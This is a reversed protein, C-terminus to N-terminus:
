HISKGKRGNFLIFLVLSYVLVFVILETGQLLLIHLSNDGPILWNISWKLLVILLLAFGSASIVKVAPGFFKLKRLVPAQKGGLTLLVLCSSGVSLAAALSIGPLGILPVFILLYIFNLCADALGNIVLIRINYDAFFYRLLLDRLAYFFLGVIYGQFVAATLASQQATLTSRSFILDVLSDAKLYFYVALPLLLILLLNVMKQMIISTKQFNKQVISKSLSPYVILMTSTILTSYILMLGQFGLNLTTISGVGLHTAFYNEIAITVKKLIALLAVPLSLLLYKRLEPEYTIRLAPAPLGKSVAQPIQVAFQIIYGAITGGILAYLPQVTGQYNTGAIVAFNYFIGTASSILFRKHAQLFALFFNAMTIFFINALFIRLMFAATEIAPGSFGSSFVTIFGKTNSLGLIFILAALLLYLSFLAAVFRRHRGASEAEYYLPVFNASLSNGFVYFLAEPILLAVFYADTVLSVGFKATILVDRFFGTLNCILSILIVLAYTRIWWFSVRFM